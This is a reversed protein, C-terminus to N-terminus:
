VSTYGGDIILNQGTIYSNSQCLWVIYDAIESTSALRKQPIDQTIEEIEDGTLNKRTLDTDVFGPSVSNVLINYEAVETSLCQTLGILAHKTAAYNARSARGVVSWISAINIIRGFNQRKMYPLVAQMLKIPALVNVQHHQLIDDTTMRGFEKTVNVGACNILVDIDSGAIRLALMELDQLKAFDCSYYQDTWDPKELSQAVGWVDHGHLKLQKCIAKGIGRSCGTVLVRM